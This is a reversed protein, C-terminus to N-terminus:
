FECEDSIVNFELFFKVIGDFIDIGGWIYLDRSYKVASM